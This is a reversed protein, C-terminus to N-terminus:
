EGQDEREIDDANLPAWYIEFLVTNELARFRHYLGPAVETYDGASLRTTDVLGSPQRVDIELLGREVYFGNVRGRHVHMSCKHGNHVEARHVQVYPNEVITRTRGWVKGRLM